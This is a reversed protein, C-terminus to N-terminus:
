GKDKPDRWGDARLQRKQYTTSHLVFYTYSKVVVFAMSIVRVLVSYRKLDRGEFKCNNRYVLVDVQVVESFPKSLFRVQAKGLKSYNLHLM